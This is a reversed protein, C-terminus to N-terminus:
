YPSPDIILLLIDIKKKTSQHLTQKKGVHHSTDKNCHATLNATLPKSIVSAGEKLLRPSILDPGCAKTVNSHSLVDIVDQQTIDIHAFEEHQIQTPAPLTKNDDNIHSQSAFYNNLMNSKQYDDEATEDNFILTPINTPTKDLNLIQKSTKWFIKSSASQNSLLQELKDFYEKKSKRIENFVKNRIVKFQDRLNIDHTKKYKRFMRQRKRILNRIRCTIWPHDKPWITTMNLYMMVLSVIM